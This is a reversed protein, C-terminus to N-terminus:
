EKCNNKKNRYALPTMGTAKKFSETFKSHNEYGIDQAIEGIPQATESLIKKAYSIRFNGMYVSIPLGYSEKFCEKLSTQSIQFETALEPLTYRIRLNNTIKEKIQHIKYLQQKEYYRNQTPPSFDNQCIWYLLELTKLKMLFPSHLNEYIDKFILNLNEQNKYVMFCNHQNIKNKVEMLNLPFSEGLLSAFSDSAKELEVTLVIGRYRGLPFIKETPKHAPLNLSCDGANLHIWQGDQFQGEFLGVDCHNICIYNDSYDISFQSYDFSSFNLDMYSLHVGEWLLYNALFGTGNDQKISFNIQNTCHEEIEIQNGHTINLDHFQM